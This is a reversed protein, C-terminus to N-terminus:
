SDHSWLMIKHLCLHQLISIVRLVKSKLGCKLCVYLVKDALLVNLHEKSIESDHHLVLFRRRVWEGVTAATLLIACFFTTSLHMRLSPLVTLSIKKSHSICCLAKYLM